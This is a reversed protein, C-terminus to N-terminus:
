GLRGTYLKTTYSITILGNEAYKHFLAELDSIMADYGPDGAAPMYSSSLLRGKLGEWPFVQKNPFTTLQCTAPHFFAAIHADSINRHDVKIYDKGHHVILQDYEKEFPSETLRENWILAVIGNEKLRKKWEARTSEPEFWHFAQGAIIADVSSADLRTDEATGDITQFGPFDSLLEVAKERMEKNPEIAIVRYGANLFLAASIGTGAGIDAILKDTTLHYQQQLYHIIGVPYDPRYKVYDEVRNSFRTTNDTAM